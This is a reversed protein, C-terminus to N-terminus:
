DEGCLMKLIKSQKARVEEETSQPLLFAEQNKPESFLGLIQDQSITLAARRNELEAKRFERELKKFRRNRRAEKQQEIYSQPMGATKNGELEARCIFRNELDEIDLYKPNEVDILCIVKKDHWNELPEAWYFGGLVSVWGRRVTRIEAPKTFYHLEDDNLIDIEGEAKLKQWNKTFVEQPTQKNRFASHATNNYQYIKEEIVRLLDEWDPLLTLGKKQLFTLEKGESQAKAASDVAYLIKRIHDQDAQQHFYTPFEMAISNALSRMLREIIGRAQPNGPIAKAHRISLRNLIGEAEADLMKNTQGGGNDSYYILPIGYNKMGRKLAELVGLKNEAFSASWGVVFRSSCDIILTIEPRFALGSIPHKVKCHLAHGDGAWCDNIQLASWDRHKYTKVARIANVSKRGQEKIHAPLVKLYTQITKLSFYPRNAEIAADRYDRWAKAVAPNKKSQYFPLFEALKRLAKEIESERTAVERSQRKKYALDYLYQYGTSQRQRLSNLFNLLEASLNGSKAQIVLADLIAKKSKKRTLELQELFKHFDQQALGAFSKNFEEAGLPMKSLIQRQLCEPLSSLLYEYGGGKGTTTFKYIWDLKLAHRKVTKPNTNILGAIQSAKLWIEAMQIGVLGYILLLFM